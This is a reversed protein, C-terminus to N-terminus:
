TCGIKCTYWLAATINVREVTWMFKEKEVIKGYFRRDPITPLDTITRSLSTYAYSQFYTQARRIYLIWMILLGNQQTNHETNTHTHTINAGNTNLTLFHLWRFTSSPLSLSIKPKWTRFNKPNVTCCLLVVLLRMSNINCTKRRDFWYQFLWLQKAAIQAISLRRIRNFIM